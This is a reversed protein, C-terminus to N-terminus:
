TERLALLARLLYEVMGAQRSLCFSQWLSQDMHLYSRKLGAGGGTARCRAVEWHSDM